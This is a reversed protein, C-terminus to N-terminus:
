ISIKALQEQIEQYNPETRPDEAIWIYRIIGEQDIIFVARQAATYGQLGVFDDLAVGYLKVVKRLYDSLLPFTLQHAEAFAKNAFPDNVSVGIVQANLANFEALTDRLACMERICPDTFAGPYFALVVIKDRFEQLQRQQRDTDPLAFEPASQGIKLM